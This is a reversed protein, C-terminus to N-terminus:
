RSLSARVGVRGRGGLSSSRSHRNRSIRTRRHRRGYTNNENEYTEIPDPYKSVNLIVGACILNMILSCGGYSIFPLPVGTAPVTSTVVLMNLLAQGCILTTAGGSLLRGYSDKTKRAIRLGRIGLALFLGALSLTGILGTEEGLVAYIFDTHEAPLYFLKERGECLGVGFPGGSGLAILSHCVQYGSGHYDKFPNIFSFLRERRYDASFAFVCALFIGVAIIFALHRSKAGGLFLMVMGTSCLVITTGMDPQAMVLLAMLGLPALAAALVKRDRIARGKATLFAALYLVLGLKAFESPQLSIPGFRMWRKAGNVEPGVLLVLILGLVSAVLILSGFPKLKWYPTYMAAFMFLLGLVGYMAQRKLFYLSDGGTYRVQGARGYSADFVLIIGIVLLVFVICFLGTDPSRRTGRSM